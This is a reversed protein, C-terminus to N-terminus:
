ASVLRIPNREMTEDVMAGIENDKYNIGPLYQEVSVFEMGDVDFKNGDVDYGFGGEEVDIVYTVAEIMATRFKIQLKNKEAKLKRGIRKREMHKEAPSLAKFKDIANVHSYFEERTIVKEGDTPHRIVVEENGEEFLRHLMAGLDADECNYEAEKPSDM